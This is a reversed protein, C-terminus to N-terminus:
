FFVNELKLENGKGDRIPFSSNGKVVEDGPLVSPGSVQNQRPVSGAGHRHTNLFLLM